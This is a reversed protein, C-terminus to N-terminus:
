GALDDWVSVFFSKVNISMIWPGFSGQRKVTQTSDMKATFYIVQTVLKLSRLCFKHYIKMSLAHFTKKIVRLM